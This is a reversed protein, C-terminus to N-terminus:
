LPSLIISLFYFELGGLFIGACNRTGPHNRSVTPHNQPRPSNNPITQTAPLITALAVLRHDAVMSWGEGDAPPVPIM